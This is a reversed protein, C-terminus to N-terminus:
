NLCEKQRFEPIRPMDKNSINMDGLYQTTESIKVSKFDESYTISLIIDERIWSMDPFECDSEPNLNEDILYFGQYNVEYAGQEDNELTKQYGENSYFENVKLIVEKYEEVTIDELNIDIRDDEYLNARSLLNKDNFNSKLYDTLNRERKPKRSTVIEKTVTTM